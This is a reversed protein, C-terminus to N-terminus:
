FGSLVTIARQDPELEFINTADSRTSREDTKEEALDSYFRDRRGRHQKVDLNGPEEARRSLGLFVHFHCGPAACRTFRKRGSNPTVPAPKM